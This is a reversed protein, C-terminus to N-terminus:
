SNSVHLMPQMTLFASLYIAVTNNLNFMEVDERTTTVPSLPPSIHVHANALPQFYKCYVCLKFQSEIMTKYITDTFYKIPIGEALLLGRVYKYLYM